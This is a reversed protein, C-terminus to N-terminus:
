ETVKRWQGRGDTTTRAAQGHLVTNEALLEVADSRIYAYPLFEDPDVDCVASGTSYMHGETYVSDIVQVVPIDSLPDHSSDRFVLEGRGRRAATVNTTTSVHILRPPCDFGAGDTRPLFKFFFSSFDLRSPPAPEDCRGRLSLYRVEHRESSGWVHEDQVEFVVKALKTPEGFIERGVIVSETTSRPMAICYHGVLDGYRARLYVGAGTFSGMCNSNRIDAVWAVGLPEPTPELPPPLLARVAEPTTEFYATLQRVGLFQARSYLSQVAAIEEPSKVLRM